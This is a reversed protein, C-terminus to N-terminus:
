GTLSADSSLIDETEAADILQCAVPLYEVCWNLEYVTSHSLCITTDFNRKGVKLATM